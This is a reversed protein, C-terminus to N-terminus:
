IIWNQAGIICFMNSAQVGPHKFHGAPNLMCFSPPIANEDRQYCRELIDTRLGMQQCVMLVHQFESAEIQEPLCAGGYQEGVLGQFSLCCSFSM